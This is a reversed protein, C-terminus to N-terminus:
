EREAVECDVCDLRARDEPARPKLLEELTLTFEAGCRMTLVAGTETRLAESLSHGGFRKAEPRLQAMQQALRMAEAPDPGEAGGVLRGNQRLIVTHKGARKKKKSM